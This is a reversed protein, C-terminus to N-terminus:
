DCWSNAAKRDIKPQEKRVMKHNLNPLYAKHGKLVGYIHKIKM